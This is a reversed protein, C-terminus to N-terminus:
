FDGWIRQEETVPTYWGSIKAGVTWPGTAANNTVLVDVKGSNPIRQQLEGFNQVVFNAIGPPFKINDWGEVPGGNIRLTFTVDTAATPTLIYIGFIDEWGVFTEPLTFTVPVVTAGVAAALVSSFNNRNFAQSMPYKYVWPPQIARVLPSQQAPGVPDSFMEPFIRGRSRSGTRHGLLKGLDIEAM